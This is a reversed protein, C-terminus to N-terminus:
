FLLVSLETTSKKRHSGSTAPELVVLLRLYLLLSISTLRVVLRILLVFFYMVEYVIKEIEWAVVTAWPRLRLIAHILASGEPRHTLRWNFSLSLTIFVSNRFITQPLICHFHVANYTCLEYLGYRLFSFLRKWVHM